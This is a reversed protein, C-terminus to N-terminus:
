LSKALSAKPPKEQFKETVGLLPLINLVPNIKFIIPRFGQISLYDTGNFNDPLKLEIKQGDDPTALSLNKPNLNIGGYKKPAVKNVMAPDSIGMVERFPAVTDDTFLVYTIREIGTDPNERLFEKVATHIARASAAIDLGLIRSGIAPMSISRIRRQDAEILARKVSEKVNEPSSSLGVFDHTFIKIIYDWGAATKIDRVDSVHAAALEFRSSGSVIKPSPFIRGILESRDRGSSSEVAKIIYGALGDRSFMETDMATVIASSPFKTIDGQVYGVKTKGMQKYHGVFPTASKDIRDSTQKAESLITDAIAIEAKSTENPLLSLIDRRRLPIAAEIIQTPFQGGNMMQHAKIRQKIREGAAIARGPISGAFDKEAGEASGMIENIDVVVYGGSVMPETTVAVSLDKKIKREKLLRKYDRPSITLFSHDAAKLNVQYPNLKRIKVLDAPGEVLNGNEDIVVSQVQKTKRHILSVVQRKGIRFIKEPETIPYDLTTKRFSAGQFRRRVARQLHKTIYTLRKEFSRDKQASEDVVSDIVEALGYIFDLVIEDGHKGIISGVNNGDFQFLALKGEKADWMIVAFEDSMDGLRCTAHFSKDPPNGEIINRVLRNVTSIYHEKGKFILNGTPRKSHTFRTRSHVLAERVDQARRLDKFEISERHLEVLSEITLNEAPHNLWIPDMDFIGAYGSQNILAIEKGIDNSYVRVGSEATRKVEALVSKMNVQPVAKPDHASFYATVFNLWLPSFRMQTLKATKFAEQNLRDAEALATLFKLGDEGDRFVTSLGGYLNFSKDSFNDEALFQKVGSQDQVSAIVRKKFDSGSAMIKRFVQFIVQDKEHQATVGSFIINFNSGSHYISFKIGTGQLEAELIKKLESEMHDILLNGLKYDMGLYHGRLNFQKKFDHPKLSVVQIGGHHGRALARVLDENYRGSYLASISHFLESEERLQIETPIAVPTNVMATDLGNKDIAEIGAEAELIKMGALRQISSGSLQGANALHTNLDVGGAFYQRPINEQTVPDFDESIFNYVGKNLAEIYQNYIKLKADKDTIDVGQIKNQDVYIQSLFSEKLNQKYWTALIMSHFIQRLDAFYTGENVEKEIIPILLEKMTSSSIKSIAKVDRKEIGALGYEKIGLSKQLAVYDEELMVKLHSGAIVVRTGHVYIDAKDPVIWIKNFTDIPIDSTGYKEFSERKVKEWFKKGLDSGPYMLSASLQKLIYDQALLDRGMETQGFSNPIIRDKEYPSLNVWMEEEPVTLSALFYRILKTVEEKMVEEPFDRDGKNVLFDFQLPNEPHLNIGILIVPSYAPSTSIMTGPAPLGSIGQAFINPPLSLNFFFTMIVFGSILRRLMRYPLNKRTM